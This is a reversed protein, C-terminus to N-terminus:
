MEPLYKKGFAGNHHRFAIGSEATMDRFAPDGVAAAAAAGAAVAALLLGAALPRM